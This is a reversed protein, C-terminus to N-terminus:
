YCTPNSVQSYNRFTGLEREWPALCKRQEVTLDLVEQSTSEMSPTVQIDYSKGPKLQSLFVSCLFKFLSGSLFGSFQAYFSFLREVLIQDQLANKYVFGM